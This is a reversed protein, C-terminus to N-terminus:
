HGAWTEPNNTISNGVNKWFGEGSLQPKGKFFRNIGRQVSKYITSGDVGEVLQCLSRGICNALLRAREAIEPNDLDVGMYDFLKSIFMKALKKNKGSSCEEIDWGESDVFSEINASEMAKKKASKSAGRMSTKYIMSVIQDLATKGLAKGTDSTLFDSVYGQGVQGPVGQSLQAQQQAQQQQQAMYQDYAAKQDREYKRRAKNGKVRAFEQGVAPLAASAGMIAAAPLSALGGTAAGLAIAPIALPNNEVMHVVSKGFKKAGKAIKGGVRKITKGLGKGRQYRGGSQCGMPVAGGTQCGLPIAGGTQCGLPVAGGSQCGLPLAGGGQRRAGALIVGGGGMVVGRGMMMKKKKCSKKKCGGIQSRPCFGFGTQTRPKVMKIPRKPVKPIVPRRTGFQQRYKDQLQMMQRVGLSKAGWGTQPMKLSPNLVPKRPMQKQLSYNKLLKEGPLRIRKKKPKKVAEEKVDQSRIVPAVYSQM